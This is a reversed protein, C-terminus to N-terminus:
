KSNGHPLEISGGLFQPKFLAQTFNQAPWMAGVNQRQRDLHIVAANAYELRVTHLVVARAAWAFAADAVVRIDGKIFHFSQGRPHRPLAGGDVNRKASGLAADDTIGPFERAVFQFPEGSAIGILKAGEDPRVFVDRRRINVGVCLDHRPKHVGVGHSM